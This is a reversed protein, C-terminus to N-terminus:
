IVQRRILRRVCNAIYPLGKMFPEPSKNMGEYFEPLSIDLHNMLTNISDPIESDERSAEKLATERDLMGNRILMSYRIIMNGTGGTRTRYIYDSLDNVVCDGHEAEFTLGFNDQLIRKLEFENWEVYDPLLVIQRKRLITDRIARLWSNYAFISNSLNGSLVEDKLVKKFFFPNWPNLQKPPSGDTKSSSGLVMLPTDYKEATMYNANFIALECASCFHGIKKLLIRMVEPLIPDMPLFIHEVKLADTILAINEKAYDSFFGNDYTITLPNLGYTVKCLYLAYSSDKGGSIPVLCDYKNKKAKAKDFIVRLKNEAQLRVDADRLWDGWMRDFKHCHSCVGDSDFTIEPYNEPMVCKTCRKMIKRM